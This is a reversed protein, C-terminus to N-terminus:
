TYLENSVRESICAHGSILMHELLTLVGDIRAAIREDGSGALDLISLAKFLQERLENRLQDHQLKSFRDPSEARQEGQELFDPMTIRHSGSLRAALYSLHSEASNLYDLFRDRPWFGSPRSHFPAECWGDMVSYVSILSSSIHNVRFQFNTM